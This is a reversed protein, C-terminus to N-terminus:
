DGNEITGPENFEKTIINIELARLFKSDTSSILPCYVTQNKRHYLHYSTTDLHNQLKLDLSLVYQGQYSTSHELTYHQIFNNPTEIYSQHGTASLIDLKNIIKGKSYDIESLPTGSVPMPVELIRIAYKVVEPPGQGIAVIVSELTDLNQATARAVITSTARIFYASQEELSEQPFVKMQKLLDNLEYGVSDIPLKLAMCLHTPLTELDPTDEKTYLRSISDPPV